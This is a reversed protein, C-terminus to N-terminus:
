ILPNSDSKECCFNKLCGKCLQRGFPIYSLVYWIYAGFQISIFVVVLIWSDFVYVSIITMIISIIYILSTILRKKDTMNKLQRTPGVLFFTGALSTINGISFLIAFRAPHGTFLGIFSGFSLLEILIGLVFCVSFGIIRETYSLKPCCLDENEETLSTYASVFKM